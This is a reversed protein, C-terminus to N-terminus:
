AARADRSVLGYGKRVERERRWESEKLGLEERARMWDATLKGVDEKLASNVESAKDLQERLLANVEALNECRPSPSVASLDSLLQQGCAAAGPNGLERLVSKTTLSLPLM